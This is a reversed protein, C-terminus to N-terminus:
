APQDDDFVLKAVTDEEPTTVPTAAPEGVMVAVKLPLDPWIVIATLLLTATVLRETVAGNEEEGM